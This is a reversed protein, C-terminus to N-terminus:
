FSTISLFGDGGIRAQYRYLTYELDQPNDENELFNGTFLDYQNDECPCVLRLGDVEMTPCAQNRPHNPDAADYAVYSQSGRKMVVIGGNGYGGIYVPNSPFKLDSYQPLNLNLRLGVNTDFLNPNNTVNDDKNCSLFLGFIFILYLYKKM